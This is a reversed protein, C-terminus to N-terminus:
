DVQHRHYWYGNKKLLEEDFTSYVKIHNLHYAWMMIIGVIYALLMLSGGEDSIPRAPCFIICATIVVIYIYPSVPSETYGRYLGILIIIISYAIMGVSLWCAEPNIQFNHM